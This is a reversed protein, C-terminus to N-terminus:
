HQIVLKRSAVSNGDVNIVVFYIGDPLKAVPISINNTGTFGTKTLPSDMIQGCLNYISVNVEKSVNLNLVINTEDNAPNPAVSMSTIDSIDEFGSAVGSLYYGGQVPNGPTPTLTYVAAIPYHNGNLYWMYEDNVYNTVIPNGSINTSDRYVEYFHVRTVGTFTGDPTTLTGYGDATVATTGSRYYTYTSVIFTVAWPDTYTNNYTFPFHLMDEPDSYALVTGSSSAVGVNQWASSTGKFYSYNGSTNFAVTATTFNSAYPTSAATVGTNVVSGSSTIALNWTQSAGASGPNAYTATNQTFVTGVVPNIGASTLTPQATNSGIVAIIFLLSLTIKKM